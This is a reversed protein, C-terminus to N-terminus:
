ALTIHNALYSSRRLQGFGLCILLYYYMDAGFINDAVGYRTMVGMRPSFDNPGITQQMLVPIYPCYVIGTDYYESGKYGLLAYEVPTQVAGMDYYAESRTDRYITFRGGVTGAKATGQNATDVTGNLPMVKYDPGLELLACVRPTAIIFNAPGRRNRVAIRNAEVVIRSYLDRAREGLWRADSTGCDWFGFGNGKGPNSTGAKLCIAKMRAVMERDTEAQIEYSLATTLEASIDIGNQAKLDQEIEVSWSAALKRSRAEVTTKSIDITMQPIRGTQEYDSVLRAVGKDAESIMADIAKDKEVKAADDAAIAAKANNQITDYGNWRAGTYATNLWNYGAEHGETQWAENDVTDGSALPTASTPDFPHDVNLSSTASSYRNASLWQESNPSDVHPGFPGNNASARGTSTQGSLSWGTGHGDRDFRHADPSNDYKPYDRQNLATPEYFFRLAWATGVPGSMPQVGVIENTINEAFTRRIMPILVKPLRADGRAYNDGSFVGATPQSNGYVSTNTNEALWNMQNQLVIAMNLRDRHETLPKVKSSKFNLIPAWEKLLKSAVDENIYSVTGKTM